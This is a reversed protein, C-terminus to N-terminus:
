ILKMYNVNYSSPPLTDWKDFIEGFTFCDVYYGARCFPPYLFLSKLAAFRNTLPQFISNILFFNLSTISDRSILLFIRQAIPRQKNLVIIPM